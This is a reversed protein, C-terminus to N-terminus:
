SLPTATWLACAFPSVPHRIDLPFLWIITLAVIYILINMLYSYVPEIEIISRALNQPTAGHWIKAAFRQLSDSSMPRVM